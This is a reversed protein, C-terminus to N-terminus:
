TVLVKFFNLDFGRVRDLDRVKDLLRLDIRLEEVFGVEEFRLLAALFSIGKKM